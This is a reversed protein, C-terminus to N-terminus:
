PGQLFAGISWATGQKITKVGAPWTSTPDLGNAIPAGLLEGGNVTPSTSYVALDSEVAPAISVFQPDVILSHADFGLSQWTAFGSGTNGPWRFLTAGDRDYDNHDFVLLSMSVSGELSVARTLLNAFINNKIIINDTNPTSPSTYLVVGTSSNWCTNGYFVHGKGSAIFCEGNRHNWVVNYLFRNMQTPAANTFLGHDGNDHISNYEITNNSAGTLVTGAGSDNSLEIGRTRNGYLLNKALVNNSSAEVGIGYGEAGASVDNNNYSSNKTVSSQNTWRLYIGAGNDRTTNGSIVLGSFFLGNPFVNGECTGGLACGFLSVGDFHNNSVTNGIIAGASVSYASHATVLVIGGRSMGSVTSNQILCNNCDELHIGDAAGNMVTLHDFTLDHSSRGAASSAQAYVVGNTPLANAAVITLNQVTVYSIAFMAIGLARTGTEVGPSLYTWGPNTGTLVYLTGASWYWDKMQALSSASARKLGKAGDFLVVNPQTGVAAQWVGTQCTSCPAWANSPVLNAGSIVPAAGSGYADFLIPQGPLGSSPVTLQERWVSGRKFLIRHGPAFPTASVKAITKWPASESTGSNSDAGAASDVYFTATWNCPEVTLTLSKVSRQGSSDAVQIDFGRTEPQEPTGTIIGLNEDLILGTPLTGLVLSWVYPAVGGSAVLNARYGVSATAVPLSSTSVALGPNHKKSKGQAAAFASNDSASGTELATCVHM